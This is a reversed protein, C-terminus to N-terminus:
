SSAISVARSDRDRVRREHAERAPEAIDLVNVLLIAGLAAQDLERAGEDQLELRQLAVAAASFLLDRHLM